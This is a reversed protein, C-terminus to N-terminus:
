IAHVPSERVPYGEYGAALVAAMLQGVTKIPGGLAGGNRGPGFCDYSAEFKDDINGQDMGLVGFLEDDPHLPVSDVVLLKQVWSHALRVREPEFERFEAVCRAMAEIPDRSMQLKRLRARVIQGQVLAFAVSLGVAALVCVVVTFWVSM